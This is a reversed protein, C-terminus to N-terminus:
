FFLRADHLFKKHQLRDLDPPFVGAVCYNAHDAYWPTSVIAAFLQDDPFSDDIPPEYKDGMTEIPLRSLHDAVVNGAGKKDKIELDFEQLM